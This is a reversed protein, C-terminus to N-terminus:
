SRIVSKYCVAGAQRSAAVKRRYQGPRPRALHLGMFFGDASLAAFGPFQGGGAYLAEPWRLLCIWAHQLAARAGYSAPILLAM